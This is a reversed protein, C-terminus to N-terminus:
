VREDRNEAFGQTFDIAIVNDAYEASQPRSHNEPCNIETETEVTALLEYRSDKKYSKSADSEVSHIVETSQLEQETERFSKEFKIFWLFNANSRDRVETFVPDHLIMQVYPALYNKGYPLEGLALILESTVFESAFAIEEELSFHNKESLMFHILKKDENRCRESLFWSEFTASAAQGTNLTRFDIFAERAFPRGLDSLSSNEIEEWFVRHGALQLEWAVRVMAVHADAIQARNVLIAHDPSFTLPHVYAGQRFQWHFRLAKSFNLVQDEIKQVPNILITNSGKYFFTTKVQTSYKIEVGYKEACGMLSSAFRSQDILSFLIELDDEYSSPATVSSANKTMKEFAALSENQFSSAFKDFQFVQDRLDRIESELIKEFEDDLIDDEEYIIEEDMYFLPQDGIYTSRVPQYNNLTYAVKIKDKEQSEGTNFGDNQTFNGM